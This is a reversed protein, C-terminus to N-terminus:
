GLDTGDAGDALILHLTFLSFHLILFQPRLSCLGNVAGARQTDRLSQRGCLSAFFVVGRRSQAKALFLLRSRRSSNVLERTFRVFRLLDFLDKNFLPNLPHILNGGKVEQM